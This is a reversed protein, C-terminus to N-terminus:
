ADMAIIENLNKTTLLSANVTYKSGDEVDFSYEFHLYYDSENISIVVFEEDEILNRFILKPLKIEYMEFLSRVKVWGIYPNIFGEKLIDSLATNIEKRTAVAGLDKGEKIVTAVKVEEGERVFEKFTIM